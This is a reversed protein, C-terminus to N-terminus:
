SDEGARPPPGHSARHLPNEARAVIAAATGEVDALIRAASVRLVRYGNETIFRDREVDRQPQTGMGHVAGDVEVVLRRNVCCFDVVYPGIAHQRRFKLGQPRQRLVQWLAVEPKTM